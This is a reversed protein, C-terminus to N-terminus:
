SGSGGEDTETGTGDGSMPISGGFADNTSGPMYLTVVNEAVQVDASSLNKKMIAKLEDNANVITVSGESLTCSIPQGGLNLKPVENDAMQPVSENRIGESVAAVCPVVIKQYVKLTEASQMTSKGVTVAAVILGIIVMVIAMEVLSFGQESKRTTVM